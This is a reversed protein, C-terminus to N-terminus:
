LPKLNYELLYALIHNDYYSGLNRDFYQLNGVHMFDEGLPMIPLPVVPIIDSGNHVQFSNLNLDRYAQAGITNFLRPSAFSYHVLNTITTKDLKLNYLDFAAITSTAGGLSMGTLIVQTDDNVYESLLKHLKGQIREYLTWFGSHVKMGPVFNNVKPTVHPYNIDVMALVNNYTGTAVVIVINLSSSYLFWAVNVNCYMYTCNLPIVVDFGEPDIKVPDPNNDNVERNHVTIRYSLELLMEATVVSYHPVAKGVISCNWRPAKKRTPSPKIVCAEQILEHSITTM